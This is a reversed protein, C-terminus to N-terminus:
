LVTSERYPIELLQKIFQANKVSAGKNEDIVQLAERQMRMWLEPAKLLANMQSSLEDQDKVTICVGRKSLLAYIEKFNFMHPGVLIPKGHAAPELINQGGKPVLSGGVFVLDAMGYVKGLEGITDLIVVQYRPFPAASQAGEDPVIETRSTARIAAKQCFNMIEAARKVHRPAIVMCAQPFDKLLTKFVSILLEEEGKHTSGAVIVPAAHRIELMKRLEDQQQPSTEACTQDFKTNGTVVVRAPDAGLAVIYDADQSSQMCFRDVNNLMGKAISLLYHYRKFSKDSVRGNVMITKVGHRKAAKLFNPWLENEVMMFLSPKIRRIIGNVLWPLDLPFHIIGTAEPILRKAMAYGTTTTVSVLITQNPIMKTIEKIISSTAVIEGVSVAHVWICQQGEVQQLVDEPLFGWMERFRKFQGSVLMRLMFFPLIAIVIIILLITYLYYM